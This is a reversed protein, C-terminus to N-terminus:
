GQPQMPQPYEVPYKTQLYNLYAQFLQQNVQQAQHKAMKDLAEAEPKDAPIIADVRALVFQDAGTECLTLSHTAAQAFLQEVCEGPLNSGSGQRDLMKSYATGFPLQKILATYSEQQGIKEKLQKAAATLQKQRQEQMWRAQLAERVTDLTLAAAPQVEELALMLLGQEPLEKVLPEETTELTFATKLAIDMGEATPLTVGEDAVAEKTTAPVQVLTLEDTKAIADMTEGAALRDEWDALTNYLADEMQEARINQRIRDSVEELEQQRSATRGRLQYILTAYETTIPASIEGAKLTLLLNRAEQPLSDPAVSGLEMWAEPLSPYEKRLEELSQGQQLARVITEAQKADELVLQAIDLQEGTEYLAKNAEYHAQVAADTVKINREVNSRPLFVYRFRRKEDSMYDDQHEQLYTQLTADDPNAIAPLSDANLPALTVQRKEQQYRLALEQLPQPVPLEAEFLSVVHNILIDERMQKLFRAEDIQQYQLFQTFLERDFTGDKQFMEQEKLVAVLEAESVALGLHKAEELLLARQILTRLVSQEVTSRLFDPVEQGGLQQQLKALQQDTLARLMGQQITQEGVTAVTQNGGLRFVDGIGWLVFSVALMLMFFKLILSTAKGRFLHLM